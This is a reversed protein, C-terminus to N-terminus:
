ARVRGSLQGLEYDLYADLFRDVIPRAEARGARSAELVARVPAGEGARSGERGAPGRDRVVRPPGPAGREGESESTDRDGPSILAAGAAALGFLVAFLAIRARRGM